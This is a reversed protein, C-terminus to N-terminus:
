KRCGGHREWQGGGRGVWIGKRAIGSVGFGCGDAGACWGVDGFRGGVVGGSRGVGAADGEGGVGAQGAPAEGGAEVAADAAAAEAVDLVVFEVDGFPRAHRAPVLCAVVM